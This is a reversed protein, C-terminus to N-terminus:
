LRQFMWTSTATIAPKSGQTVTNTGSFSDAGPQFMGSAGCAWTATFTRPLNETMSGGGCTMPDGGHTTTITHHAEGPAEGFITTLEYAGTDERVLLMVASGAPPASIMASEGFDTHIMIPCMVTGSTSDSTVSYSESAEVKKVTVTGSVADADTAHELQVTISKKRTYTTRTAADTETGMQTCTATGGWRRRQGVNIMLPKETDTRLLLGPILTSMTGAWFMHPGVDGVEPTWTWSYSSQGPSTAITQALKPEMGPAQQWIRVDKVNDITLFRLTDPKLNVSLKVQTGPMAQVKDTTFPGRPSEAIVPLEVTVSPKIAIAGGLWRLGAAVNKGAGFELVPKLDYAAAFGGLNLQTYRWSGLKAQAKAMLSAKILKLSGVFPFALNLGTIGGLGATVTLSVPAPSDPYDFRPVLKFKNTFDSLDKTGGQPTYQFGLRVKSEGRLELGGTLPISALVGSFDGGVGLPIRFGALIGLPGGIPIPIEHLTVECGVTGVLMASFNVTASATVNLTGELAVMAEVWDDTDADRVFRYGFSMDPVVRLNATGTLAGASLKAACDLPGIKFTGPDETQGQRIAGVGRPRREAMTPAPPVALLEALAAGDIAHSGEANLRRFVQLLPVTELVVELQGGAGPTASVVRGAIPKGERALLVTGPSLPSVGTLSLKLKVGVEPPAAPDVLTPGATVQADSVLVAGAAPEAVLVLAPASTLGGGRVRIQASGVDKMATVQGSGDVAVAEPRSSEWSLSIALKQGAADFAEAHLSATDGAKTFLAAAPTIVIRGLYKPLEPGPDIALGGDGTTGGAGAASGDGNLFGGLFDGAYGGSAPKSGNSCAISIVLLGPLWARAPSLM